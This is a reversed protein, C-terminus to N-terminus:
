RCSSFSILSKPAKEHHMDGSLDFTTSIDSIKKTYRCVSVVIGAVAV